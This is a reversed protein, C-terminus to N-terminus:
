SAVSTLKEIADRYKNEWAQHALRQKEMKTHSDDPKLNWLKRREHKIIAEDALKAYTTRPTRSPIRSEPNM